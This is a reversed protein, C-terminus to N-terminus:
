VSLLVILLGFLAMVVGWGRTWSLFAESPELNKYCWGKSVQFASKPSAASFIGLGIFIVGVFVMSSTEGSNKSKVSRINCAEKVAAALDLAKFGRGAGNDTGESCFGFGDNCTFVAGDPFTIKIETGEVSYSYSNGDPDLITRNATDVTYFSDPGYDFQAFNGASVYKVPSTQEETLEKKCGALSFLLLLCLAAVWVVRKM